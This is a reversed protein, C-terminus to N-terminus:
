SAKQAKPDSEPNAKVIARRLSVGKDGLKREPQSLLWADLGGKREVTRLIGTCISLRVNQELIDSRLHTSQLNPFFRRRTRNHAHSVNNGVMVGKGSLECRRAM